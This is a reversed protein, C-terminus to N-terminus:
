INNVLPVLKLDPVAKNNKKRELIQKVLLNIEFFSLHPNEIELKYALTNIYIDNLTSEGLILNKKINM